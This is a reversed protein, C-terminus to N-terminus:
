KFWYSSTAMPLCKLLPPMNEDSKIGGRSKKKSRLYIIGEEINIEKWVIQGIYRKEGCKIEIQNPLFFNGIHVFNKFSYEKSEIIKKRIVFNEIDVYIKNTNGMVVCPIHDVYEYSIQSKELKMSYLMIEPNTFDQLTLPIIPVDKIIKGNKIYGYMLNERTENRSQSWLIKVDQGKQLYDYSIHRGDLNIFDVHMYFSKLGKYEKKINIFIEKM